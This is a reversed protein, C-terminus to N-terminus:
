EGALHLITLVDAAGLAHARDIRIASVERASLETRQGKTDVMLRYRVYFSVENLEENHTAVFMRRIFAKFWKPFVM